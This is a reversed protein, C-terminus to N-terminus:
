RWTLYPRLQKATPPQWTKLGERMVACYSCACAGMKGLGIEPRRRLEKVSIEAMARAPALYMDNDGLRTVGMIKRKILPAALSKEFHDVHWPANPYDYVHRKGNADLAHAILNRQPMNLWVEGAHFITASRIPCFLLVDGGVDCLKGWFEDRHLPTRDPRQSAIMEAARPGLAAVSHTPHAGRLVGPLKRFYETIAGVHSPSEKPDYPRGGLVSNSHTPMILTGEPGLVDLLAQVVTAAGGPIYGFRSLSSHVALISGRRVGAKRLAKRLETDSIVPRLKLLGRKALYMILKEARDAEVKVGMNQLNFVLEDLTRKGDCNAYLMSIWGETGWGPNLQLAKKLAKIEDQGVHDEFSLLGKFKAQPVLIRRAKPDPTFKKSKPKKAAVAAELKIREATAPWLGTTRSVGADYLTQASTAPVYLNPSVFAKRITDLEASMRADRVEPEAITKDPEVQKVLQLLDQNTLRTINYLFATAATGTWRFTRNNLIAPTDDSLHYTPGTKQEISVHGGAPTLGPIADSAYNAGPKIQLIPGVMKNAVSVADMLLRGAFHPRHRFGTLIGVNGSEKTADAGAMDINIGGYFRGPNEKNNFWWQQGRVESTFYFRIQRGKNADKLQAMVRLAEIAVGVGSANDQAGIEDIHACVYVPPQVTGISGTLMPVSGAYRKAQVRARLKLAGNQNLQDGLLKGMENSIAFVPICLRGVDLPVSYNLYQAARRSPGPHVCIIGKAGNQTAWINFAIDPKGATVLVFNDKIKKALPEARTLLPRKDGGEPPPIAVVGGNVWGGKPTPPSFLAVSLPNEDSDALVKRPAVIELRVSKVDWAVPMLWGAAATVGDSPIEEIRVDEIGAARLYREAVRAARWFSPTDQKRAEQWIEVTAKRARTASFKGAVKTVDSMKKCNKAHM